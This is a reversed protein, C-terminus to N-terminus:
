ACISFHAFYFYLLLILIYFLLTYRKPDNKMDFGNIKLINWEDRPGKSYSFSVQFVFMFFIKFRWLDKIEEAFSEQIDCVSCCGIDFTVENIKICRTYM